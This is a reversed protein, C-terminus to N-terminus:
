EVWVPDGDNNDAPSIRTQVSGNQQMTYVGHASGTQSYTIFQGDPSWRGRFAVGTTTLQELASGDPNVTYLDGVGVITAGGTFLIRTGSPSWRPWALTLGPDIITRGSGDSNMIGLQANHAFTLRTGDPSWAPHADGTIGSPTVRHPNTGDANMVWIASECDTFSIFAGDPSWAPEQGCAFSPSVLRKNKGDYRVTYVRPASNIDFGGYAITQGDPSVTPEQYVSASATVQERDTGDPAMSYLFGPGVFVIRGALTGPCIAEMAISVVAQYAVSVTQSTPTTISCNEAEGGISITRSGAPVNSITLTGNTPVPQASGVDVQVTFGDADLARGRSSSTIQITGVRAVCAVEFTVPTTGGATVTVTRTASGALTCNNAVGSLTVTHSGSVLLGGIQVSSNAAITFVPTADVQYMYGDPDPDPGSTATIIEITGVTPSCTVVFALTTVQGATLTISRPNQGSIACNEVVGSLGVLISGPALDSVTAAGSVTALPGRATGQVLLTYGDPDLNIGTTTVTVQLTATPSPDTGESGGCASMLVLTTAVAARCLQPRVSALPKM